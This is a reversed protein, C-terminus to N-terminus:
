KTDRARLANIQQQLSRLERQTASRWDANGRRNLLDRRLNDARMELKRLQIREGFSLGNRRTPLPKARSEPGAMSQLAELRDRVRAADEHSGLQGLEPLDVPRADATCPLHSYLPVGQHDCKYIDRAAGPLSIMLGLTLIVTKM